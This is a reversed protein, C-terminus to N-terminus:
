MRPRFSRASIRMQYRWSECFARMDFNMAAIRKELLQLLEPNSPPNEPNQWDVPQVLGRGFM